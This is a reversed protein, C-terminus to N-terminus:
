DYEHCNMGTAPCVALSEPVPVHWQSRCRTLKDCRQSVASHTDRSRGNYCIPLAVTLYTRGRARSRSLAPLIDQISATIARPAVDVQQYVARALGPALGDGRGEPEPAGVRRGLAGDRPDLAVEPEVRDGAPQDVHVRMVAEDDPADPARHVTQGDLRREEGRRDLACHEADRGGLELEDREGRAHHLAVARDVRQAARL